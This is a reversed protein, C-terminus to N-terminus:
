PLLKDLRTTKWISKMTSIMLLSLLIILKQKKKIKKKNLPLLGLQSRLNRQSKVRPIVLQRRPDESSASTIKVLSRLGLLMSLSQNSLSMLNWKSKM